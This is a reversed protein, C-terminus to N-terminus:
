KKLKALVRAEVEEWPTGAGPNAELLAIRRDLERRQADTLPPPERDADLSELIEEVLRMRDEASLRDIGLQTMLTNM